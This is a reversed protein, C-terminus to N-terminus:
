EMLAPASGASRVSLVVPTIEPVAFAAPVKLKVTVAFSLSLKV